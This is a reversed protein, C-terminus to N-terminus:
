TTRVGENPALSRASVVTKM